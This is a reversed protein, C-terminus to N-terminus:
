STNVEQNSFSIMPCLVFSISGIVTLLLILSHNPGCNNCQRHLTSIAVLIKTTLFNGIKVLNGIKVVTKEHKTSKKVISSNSVHSLMSIM